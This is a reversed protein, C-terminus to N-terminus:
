TQRPRRRLRGSPGVTTRNSAKTSNLAVTALTQGWGVVGGGVTWRWKADVAM